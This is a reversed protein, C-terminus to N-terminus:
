KRKLSGKSKEKDSSRQKKVKEEKKSKSHLNEYVDEKHRHYPPCMLCHHLELSHLTVQGECGGGTARRVPSCVAGHLLPRTECM